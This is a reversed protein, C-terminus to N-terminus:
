LAQFQGLGATSRKAARTDVIVGYFCHSDYRSTTLFADYTSTTTVPDIPDLFGLAPVAPLAKTLQHFLSSDLLQTMAKLAFTATNTFYSTIYTTSSEKSQDPEDDSDEM